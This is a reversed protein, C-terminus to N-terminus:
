SPKMRTNRSEAVVSERRGLFAMQSDYIKKFDPEVRLDRCQGREIGEPLSEM